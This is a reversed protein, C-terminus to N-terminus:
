KKAKKRKKATKPKGEAPDPALLAAYVDGNRIFSVAAELQPDDDLKFRYYVDTDQGHHRII